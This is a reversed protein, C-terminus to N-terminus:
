RIVGLQEVLRIGIILRFREVLRQRVILWHGRL